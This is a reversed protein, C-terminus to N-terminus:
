ERSEQKAGEQTADPAEKAKLFTRAAAYAAATLAMALSAGADIEGQYAQGAALLVTVILAVWFETSRRGPKM